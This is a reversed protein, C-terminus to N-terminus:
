GDDNTSGLRYRRCSVFRLQGVDQPSFQPFQFPNMLFTLVIDGGEVAVRPDPANPEANWGKNLQQFTTM